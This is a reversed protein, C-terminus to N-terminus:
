SNIRKSLELIMQRLEDIEKQQQEIKKINAEEKGKKDAEMMDFASAFGRQEAEVMIKPRRFKGLPCLQSKDCHKHELGKFDQDIIHAIPKITHRLDDTDLHKQNDIYKKFPYNKSDIKDTM